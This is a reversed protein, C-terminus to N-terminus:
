VGTPISFRVKYRGCSPFTYGAPNMNSNLILKGEPSFIRWSVVWKSPAQFSFSNANVCSTGLKTITFSTDATLDSVAKDRTLTDRCNNIDTVILSPIYVQTGTYIHIFNTWNTTDYTGDGFVWKFNKVTSLAITSTNNYKVPTVNCGPDYVTLYGLNGMRPHVVASDIHSSECGNTDFVQMVVVYQGGAPNSYSHCVNGPLTNIAQDFSGDGFLVIRKSLPANGLTSNDTLCLRNNKFCLTDASATFYAQPKNVVKIPTSRIVTCSTGGTRYVTIKPFFNGASTYQYVVSPGQSSTKGDGFDWAWASDGSNLPTSLAISNGLCVVDTGTNIACPQANAATLFLLLVTVLSLVCKPHIHSMKELSM